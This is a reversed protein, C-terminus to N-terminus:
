LHSLFYTYQERDEYLDEAHWICSCTLSFIHTHKDFPLLSSGEFYVCILDFPAM